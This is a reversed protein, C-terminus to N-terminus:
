QWSGSHCSMGRCDRRGKGGENWNGVEVSSGYCEFKNDVAASMVSRGASRMGRKDPRGQAPRSLQQLVVVVVVWASETARSLM